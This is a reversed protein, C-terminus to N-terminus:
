ALVVEKKYEGNQISRGKNPMHPIGGIIPIGIRESIMKVTEIFNDRLDEYKVYIIKEQHEGMGKKWSSIHNRHRVLMDKYQKYQYRICGGFPEAVMLHTATSCKPGEDWNISNFHKRLSEFLEFEKYRYIYFIHVNLLLEGIVPQFFRGEYHSKVIHRIAEPNNVFLDKLMGSINEPIWPNMPMDFDIPPDSIYGFNDAIANMLFHTGSREHSNVMVPRIM